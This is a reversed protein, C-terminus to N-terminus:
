ECDVFIKYVVDLGFKTSALSRRHAACRSSSTCMRQIAPILCSCWTSSILRDHRVVVGLRLVCLSNGSGFVTCNRGYVALTSKVTPMGKADRHLADSVEAKLEETTSQSNQGYSSALPYERNLSHRLSDPPPFGSRQSRLIVPM